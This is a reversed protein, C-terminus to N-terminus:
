MHLMCPLSWLFSHLICLYFLKHLTVSLSVHSILFSGVPFFVTWSRVLKSSLIFLLLYTSFISNVEGQNMAFNLDNRIKLFTYNWYIFSRTLLNIYLICFTLLCESSMFKKWSNQFHLQPKFNSSLKQSWWHISINKLLPQVLGPKLSKISIFFEELSISLLLTTIISWTWQVRSWDNFCLKTSHFWLCMNIESASILQHIETLTCNPYLQEPKSFPCTPFFLSYCIVDCVYM